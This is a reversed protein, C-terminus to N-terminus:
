QVTMLEVRRNRRRGEPTDNTDIPQSEGYAQADLRGTDIGRSQLYTVVSRARRESLSQNYSDAGVSDTHATIRVPVSDCENLRYAVGDLVARADGTLQDSDSHFNVGDLTGSFESCTDIPAPPEAVVIAPVPIPTPTPIPTPEPEPAKVIQVPRSERKGTRYVVGLQAYRADEEYSIAEARIGLGIRTMYELGAGVLVHTSNDKVYNIPGDVSNDLYGLGVRGYGSIGQRKFNHRNKGAYLLASAGHIHYNVRSSPTVGASGLDASHFEVALQRSLDMGVTVQGGPEVRDNVNAGVIESTDPEMWSRGVGLGAYIHRKIRNNDGYVRSPSTNLVSKDKALIGDSGSSACGTVAVSGIVASVVLATSKVLSTIQKM